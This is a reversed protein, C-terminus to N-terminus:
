AARASAGIAVDAATGGGPLRVTALARELSRRLDAGMISAGKQAARAAHALVQRAEPRWPDGWYWACSTYMALRSRQADLANTDTPM